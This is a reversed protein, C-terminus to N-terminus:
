SRKLTGFLRGASAVVPTWEVATAGVYRMYDRIASRM